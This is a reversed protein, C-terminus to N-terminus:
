LLGGGEAAIGKGVLRERERCPCVSGKPTHSCWHPPLASNKVFAVEKVQRKFMLIGFIASDSLICM